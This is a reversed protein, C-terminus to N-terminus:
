WFKQILLDISQFHFKMKELSPLRSTTEHEDHIVCIAPEYVIEMGIARMMEAFWIEEGFLFSNWAVPSIRRLAESRVVFFSGHAAYIPQADKRELALKRTALRSKVWERLDSAIQYCAGIYRHRFIWRLRRMRELSPRELLFPNQDRGSAGSQIRPALIGVTPRLDYELIKTKADRVSFSLDVNSLVVWRACKWRQLVHEVGLGLGNLYGVNSPSRVFEFGERNECWERLVVDTVPSNDVVVVGCRGESEDFIKELFQLTRGGSRYNVCVFVVEIHDARAM